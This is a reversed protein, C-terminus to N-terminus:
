SPWCRTTTCGSWRATGCARTSDCRRARGAPKFEGAVQPIHFRHLTGTSPLWNAAPDEACLRVEIAHGRMPPSANLPLPDGEAVLLQLRVLDFGTVLETVAHEVQLRTNM